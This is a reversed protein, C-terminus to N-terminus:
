HWESNLIRQFVIRSLKPHVKIYSNEFLAATEMKLASTNWSQFHFCSAGGCHQFDSSFWLVECPFSSTCTHKNSAICNDDAFSFRSYWAQEMKTINRNGRGDTIHVVSMDSRSFPCCYQHTRLLARHWITFASVQTYSFSLFVWYLLIQQLRSYSKRRWLTMVFCESICTVTIGNQGKHTHEQIKM